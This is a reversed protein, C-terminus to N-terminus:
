SESISIELAVLRQSEIRWGRLQLVGKTGLSIGLVLPIRIGLAGLETLAPAQADGADTRYAAFLTEGRRELQHRAASISKADLGALPYCHVPTRGRAGIIGWRISDPASQAARLLQNVLIRPLSIRMEEAM